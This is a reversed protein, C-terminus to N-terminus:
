STLLWWGGLLVALVMSAPALLILGKERGEDLLPLLYVALAAALVANEDSSNALILVLAPYKAVVWAARPATDAPTVRYVVVLAGALVMGALARDVGALGVVLAVLLLLLIGRIRRFGGLHRSRVLVRQPHRRRDTEVDELDDWLRFALIFLACAPALWPLYLLPRAATFGTAVLLLLWLLGIRPTLMREGLYARFEAAFMNWGAGTATWACAM